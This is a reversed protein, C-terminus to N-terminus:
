PFVTSWASPSGSEFGDIFIVAAAGGDLVHVVELSSGSLNQTGVAVESLGDGNLDSAPYVSYVRNGTPYTWLVAGDVGSMAYVNTDFSGAIVDEFDDGDLDDIARATWVDGGNTTGVTTKWVLEGTLGDLVTVANEWSAVIIEDYGDDTVDALIDVMMGADNVDSSEWIFTGDSGDVCRVASGDGVWLVALAEAIGDGTIDPLVGAAYLPASPDYSWLLHGNPNTTAGDLCLLLDIDEGAAALVDDHGDGNVDGISRVTTVADGAFYQWLATAAGTSAGDVLTVRDNDSGAGFVIESVGDGTIDAVEALSYVWGSDATQYTDFTWNVTGDLGDISHASRGGWATGVVINPHGNGDLDSVPLIADDGTPSGNSAGSVPLQSWVVTAAGTSAGDLCFVNDSQSEDIGAIIENRGDGTVDPVSRVCRVHDAAEMFFLRDAVPADFPATPTSPPSVPAEARARLIETTDEHSTEAPASSAALALLLCGIGIMWPKRM